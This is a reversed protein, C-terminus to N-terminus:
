PASPDKPGFIIEVRRNKARGEATDNTAVSERKGKGSPVLRGALSPDQAILEDVVAQARRESLRQNFADSGISDTHGVIETSTSRRLDPLLKKLEDKGEQKIKTSDFDFLIPAALVVPPPPPPPTFVRTRVVGPGPYEVDFTVDAAFVPGFLGETAELKSMPVTEARAAFGTGLAGPCFDVTDHVHFTLHPTVTITGARGGPGGLVLLIEVDGSADRTDADFPGGPRGGSGVGGAINGPISLVDDFDM